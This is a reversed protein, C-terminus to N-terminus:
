GNRCMLEFCTRCVCVLFVGIMCVTTYIHTIVASYEFMNEQVIILKFLCQTLTHTHSVNQVHCYKM